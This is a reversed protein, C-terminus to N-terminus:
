SYHNARSCPSTAIRAHSGQHAADNRAQRLETYLAGFTNHYQPWELPIEYSLPSNAALSSIENEYKRLGLVKGVLMQGILELSHLVDQFGEADALAAARASRMHDRYFCKEPTNV